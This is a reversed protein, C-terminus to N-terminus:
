VEEDSNISRDRIYNMNEKLRMDLLRMLKQIYQVGRKREQKVTLNGETEICDLKVMARMMMEELYIYEKDDKSCGSFNEIQKKLAEIEATVTNILKLSEFVFIFEKESETPSKTGTESKDDMEETKPVLKEEKEEKDNDSEKNIDEKKDIIKEVKVPLQQSIESTTKFVFKSSEKSSTKLVKTDTNPPQKLEM